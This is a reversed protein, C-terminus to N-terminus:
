GEEQNFLSAGEPVLARIAAAAAAVNSKDNWWRSTGSPHPLVLYTLLPSARPRVVDLPAHSGLGFADAVARGCLIAVVAEESSMLALRVAAAAESMARAPPVADGGADAEGPWEDYLNVTECHGLLGGPQLGLLREIRRGSASGAFAPDGPRSSRAPAVGVILTRM